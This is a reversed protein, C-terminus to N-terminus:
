KKMMRRIIIISSFGAVISVVALSVLMGITAGRLSESSSEVTECEREDFSSIVVGCANDIALMEEMVLVPSGSSVLSQLLEILQSVPLEQTEVIEARFTAATTTQSFCRFGDSTIQNAGFRCQCQQYLMNVIHVIIDNAKDVSRDAQLVTITILNFINKV